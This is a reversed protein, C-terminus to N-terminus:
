SSGPPKQPRQPEALELLGLAKLAILQTNGCNSCVTAVCVLVHDDARIQLRSPHGMVPVNVYGNQLAWDHEGCIPCGAGRMTGDRTEKADLAAAIQRLQDENFAAM